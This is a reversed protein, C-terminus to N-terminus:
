WNIHISAIKVRNFIRFTLTRALYNSDKMSRGHIIMKKDGFHHHQLGHRIKSLADIYMNILFKKYFDVWYYWPVIPKYLFKNLIRKVSKFGPKFKPFFWSLM